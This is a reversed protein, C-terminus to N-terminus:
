RLPTHTHTVISFLCFKIHELVRYSGNNCTFYFMEADHLEDM